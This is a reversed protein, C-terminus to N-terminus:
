KDRFKVTITGEQSLKEFSIKISSGINLEPNKKLAADYTYIGFKVTNKYKSFAEINEIRFDGKGVAVCNVSIVNIKGDSNIEFTMREPGILSFRNHIKRDCKKQIFKQPVGNKRFRITLNPKMDKDFKPKKVYLIIALILLLLILLILLLRGIYMLMGLPQVSIIVNSEGEEIIGSDFHITQTVQLKSINPLVNIPSSANLYLRYTSIENGLEVNFDLKQRCFNKIIYKYLFNGDNSLVSFVFGDKGRKWEDETLDRLVGDCDLLQVNVLIYEEENSMNSSFMYHPNKKPYKEKPALLTLVLDIKEETNILVDCTGSGTRAEEGTGKTVIVNISTDGSVIDAFNDCSPILTYNGNEDGEVNFYIGNVSSVQINEKSIQAKSGDNNTIKFVIPNTADLSAADIIYKKETFTIQYPASVVEMTFMNRKEINGKFKAGTTVTYKGKSLEITDGESVKKQNEGEKNLTMSLDVDGLLNSSGSKIEKGNLPNIMRLEVKYEGSEVTKMESSNIISETGVDNRLVAEVDVGPEFYVEVNDTNCKFSYSAKGNKNGFPVDEATYTIIHGNLGTAFDIKSWNSVVPTNEIGKLVNVSIDEKKASLQKDGMTIDEVSIDKGQAFIIFKSVPIDAEFSYEGSGNINIAQYNYVRRAIETITSLIKNENIGNYSFFTDSNLESMDAINDGIGVYIVNVSSDNIYTQMARQTQESSEHEDFEGDTLVILWKEDASSKKLDNGASRVTGFPTGGTVSTNIKNVKSIKKDINLKGDVTIIDSQKNNRYGSMPYINITDKEGMMSVFVKMAYKAQSWKTEAAVPSGNSYKAVMSGSDDYVINIERTISSSDAATVITVCFMFYIIILGIM